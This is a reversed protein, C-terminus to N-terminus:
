PHQMGGMKFPTYDPPTTFAAAPPASRDVKIALMKVDEKGDKIEAMKLPFFGDKFEQMAAAMQPSMSPGMQQMKDQMAQQGWLFGLGHAACVLTQKPKGEETSTFVYDDCPIGAITETGTKKLDGPNAANDSHNKNIKDLGPESRPKPNYTHTMYMKRDNLLTTSTHTAEDSIMSVSSGMMQSMGSGPPMMMDMRRHTGQETITMTGTGGKADEAGMSTQYTVSGTFSGQAALSAPVALAGTVAFSVLTSAISPRILSRCSLFLIRCSM